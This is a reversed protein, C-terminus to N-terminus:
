NLVWLLDFLYMFLILFLIIYHEWPVCAGSSKLKINLLIISRGDNVANYSFQVSSSSSMVTKELAAIYM